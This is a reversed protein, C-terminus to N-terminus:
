SRSDPLSLQRLSAWPLDQQVLWATTLGKWGNRDYTRERWPGGAAKDMDREMNMLKPYIRGPHRIGTHPKNQQDTWWARTRYSDIITAANLSDHLCARTRHGAFQWWRELWLTSWRKKSYKHVVARAGRYARERFQIWSEDDKKAVRMIWVCAQLQFSNILGLSAADMPLAALPWLVTGGLVREMLRIRGGIPTKARLLHRLDGWFKARAKALLPAITESPTAGVRFTMGLIHLEEAAHLLVGQIRATRKGNHFPSCYLQCKKPNITLGFEQLVVSWQAVRREIGAVGQSWHLGDDMYLLSDLALGDFAHAGEDWKFRDRAEHLCAEALFSFFAPSEIAGQKIGGHMEIISTDWGTQLIADNDKLLNHWCRFEPCMGMRKQLRDVLVRRDVKDFAKALDVKLWCVGRKWEQELQM